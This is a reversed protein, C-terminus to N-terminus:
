SIVDFEEILYAIDYIDKASIGTKISLYKLPNSYYHLSLFHYLTSYLNNTASLVVKAVIMCGFVYLLALNRPISSYTGYDYPACIPHIALIKNISLSNVM